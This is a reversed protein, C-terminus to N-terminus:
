EEQLQKRLENFYDATKLLRSGYWSFMEGDVLLFKIKFNNLQVKIEDIHKQKFPYPETSLLVLECEKEVLEKLTIIPYRKKNEYINILGCYQLMNNIFTDEGITMYPERWILYCTKYQKNYTSLQLFKNHINNALSIAEQKKNVIEGISKIMTIADNLNNVDSIWIPCFVQLAEIQEKINEEKNAIILDPQLDKIKQININKTGGIKTKQQLWNQPHVCFKTIGIVEENLGLDFLLETQSPVLSIIRKPTTPLIIEQNLQDIYVPM